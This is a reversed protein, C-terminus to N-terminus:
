GSVTRTRSKSNIMTPWSLLYCCPSSSIRTTRPKTLLSNIDSTIWRHVIHACRCVKMLAPFLDRHTFYSVLGTQYAGSVLALATQVAKQRLRVLKKDAAVLAFPRLVCLDPWQSHYGRTRRCFRHLGYGCRGIRRHRQHHRLKPEYITQKPHRRFLGDFDPQYTPTLM